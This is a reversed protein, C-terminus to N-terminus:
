CFFNDCKELRKLVTILAFCIPYPFRQLSQMAFSELRGSPLSLAFHEIKMAVFGKQKAFSSCNKNNEQLCFHMFNNFALQFANPISLFPASRKPQSSSHTPCTPTCPRSPLSYSRSLFARYRLRILINLNSTLNLGITFCRYFFLPLVIIVMAIVAQTRSSRIM